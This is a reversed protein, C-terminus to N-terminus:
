VPGNGRQSIVALHVRWFHAPVIYPTYFLVRLIRKGALAKSNLLAALLLPFFIAVPLM